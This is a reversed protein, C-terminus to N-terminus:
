ITNNMDVNNEFSKVGKSVFVGMGEDEGNYLGSVMDIVICEGWFVQLIFLSLLHLVNM